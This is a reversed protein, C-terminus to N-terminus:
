DDHGCPINKMAEAHPQGQEDTEEDAFREPLMEAMMSRLKEDAPKHQTEKQGM